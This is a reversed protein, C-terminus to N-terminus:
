SELGVLENSLQWLKQRAGRDYAQSAARSPQKQNFYTGTVTELDPSTAVHIEVEAGAHASGQPASFAERVMKTDLLSGPHLCNVTIHHDALRQALEFTFMTLAMKSQAYARMPHYDKELMVDNFDIAQQAASSVNVIRSPAAAQLIPLLSRTLLFPALYNVAFILEHGDRSVTREGRSTRGPGVGANNILVDLRSHNSQIAAAMRRVEDLSELDATYCYIGPNGTALKIENQLTRCKPENRGHLIMDAGMQALRQACIRGIGDTSGTVMITLQDIPKM